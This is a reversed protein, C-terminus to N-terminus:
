MGIIIQQFYADVLRVDTKEQNSAHKKTYPNPRIRWPAYQVVQQLWGALEIPHGKEEKEFLHMSNQVGVQNQDIYLARNTPFLYRALLYDPEAEVLRNINELHRARLKLFLGLMQRPTTSTLDSGCDLAIQPLQHKTIFYEDPPSCIPTGSATMTAELNYVNTGDEYRCIFHSRVCALSVPWGMRWGLVVYLAAMNGCTGRMTDMIGNLFLDGPNTYLIGEPGPNVQDEQYRIGLGDVVFQCMAALRVYNIDTKWQHPTRRFHAEAEPLMNKICDAWHDALDVYHGIDLNSLSPIGKAIVLNVVLPDVKCLEENPLAVLQDVTPWSKRDMM